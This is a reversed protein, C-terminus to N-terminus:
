PAERADDGVVVDVELQAGALDVGQEALVAGALARQHVDEGAEVPRVRALDADVAPRDREPEGRSAIAAPSPITWWCKVSTGDCVTVSFM